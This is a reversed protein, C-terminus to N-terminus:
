APLYKDARSNKAVRGRGVTSRRAAQVRDMMAYLKRAGAETSGNGLESVIRAPVVFEGDALRAPRKNGISAPISDSVGDGPGRLLRGGDSYDGLNFQQAMGGRAMAMLGGAAAKKTYKRGGAKGYRQYHEWAAAALDEKTGFDAKGANLEDMVDQNAKLYATADFNAKEDEAAKEDVKTQDIKGDEGTLAKAGTYLKSIENIPRGTAAAIQEVSLNNTTAWTYFDAQSPNKDMYAAVDKNTLNTSKVGKSDYTPIAYDPNIKYQKTEPDFLYMKSSTPLKKGLVSEVYPKMVEGTKTFPVPDYDERGMLYNYSQKSGGTLPYKDEVAKLSDFTPSTYGLSGGGDTYLKRVDNTTLGTLDPKTTITGNANVVTNGAGSVGGPLSDVPVEDLKGPVIKTGDNRTKYQIWDKVTKGTAKVLDAENMNETNLADKMVKEQKDPSLLALDDTYEDFWNDIVKDIPTFGLGREAFWKYTNSAGAPILGPLGANVNQDKNQNTLDKNALSTDIIKQNLGGLGKSADLADLRAKEKSWLDAAKTKQEATANQQFWTAADSKTPNASLEGLYTLATTNNIDFGPSYNTLAVPQGTTTDTVYHGPRTTDVKAMNQASYPNAANAADVTMQYDPVGVKHTTAYDNADWVGQANFGPITDFAANIEADTLKYTDRAVNRLGELSAGSNNKLETALAANITAQDFQGPVYGGTVFHAIGGEAMRVVPESRQAFDYMGGQAMGDITRRPVDDGDGYGAMGGAAMGMLGGNAASKMQAEYPNGGVFGGSYPNYSYPRIMGPQTVTKPMNEKASAAALIAPGAAYMLPKANAKLYKMPDNKAVDAGASLRDAFPTALAEKQSELALQSAAEGYAPTGAELGRAALTEAYNGMGATTMADAGAASMGATLSAGGYAGLGASIGKGIDGTRVTEVGGVMAAATMPDITGQSFFSIGAGIITPLLKELFNAEPLGTDPNITLTGGHHEALAQLGQVERPSMHILMSDPGRGKSAMHDALVALSM